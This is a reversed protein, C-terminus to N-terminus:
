GPKRLDVLIWGRLFGLAEFRSILKEYATGILFLIANFALYAPYQGLYRLSAIELGSARALRRVARRTNARFYTPFTDETARGETKAVIWPHLRNPIMWAALSGYDWLNPALYLFHGGPKLIRLAEDFVGRPDEVHEMLARSILLDASEPELGTDGISAAVYEIGPERTAPDFAVLDVGILRRAKGKYRRLVPATRGCGGDVLTHEPRLLADVAREYIRYPHDEPRFWRRQLRQTLTEEAARAHAESSSSSSSPHAASM